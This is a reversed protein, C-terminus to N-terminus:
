CCRCSSCGSPMASTRSRSSRSARSGPRRTAAPQGSRAAGGRDMARVGALGAPREAADRARVSGEGSLVGRPRPRRGERVAADPGAPHAGRLDLDRGATWAHRSCRRCCSTSAAGRSPTSASWRSCARRRRRRANPWRRRCRRPGRAAAGHVLQPDVGAPRRQQGAHLDRVGGRGAAARHADTAAGVGGPGEGVEGSRRRRVRRDVPGAKQSRRRRDVPPLGRRVSQPVDAAPQRSRGQPRDRHGPRRRDGGGRHAVPLARDQRQRDHRRVRRADRSRALRLPDARRTAQRAELDYRRGLYFLGLKEIDM